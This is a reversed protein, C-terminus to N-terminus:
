KKRVKLNGLYEVNGQKKMLDYYKKDATLFIASTDDALAHYVADYYSATPNEFLIKAANILVEDDPEMISLNLKRMRNFANSADDFSAYIRPIVNLFEYILISPALFTTERRLNMDIIDDVLESFEEQVFSKLLVSNDIVICKHYLSNVM